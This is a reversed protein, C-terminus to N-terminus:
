VEEKRLIKRKIKHVDIPGELFVTKFSNQDLGCNWTTEFTGTVASSWVIYDDVYDENEIHCKILALGEIYWFGVHPKRYISGEHNVEEPLDYLKETSEILALRYKHSFCESRVDFHYLFEKTIYLPLGKYIGKLFYENSYDSFTIRQNNDVQDVNDVLSLKIKLDQLIHGNYVCVVDLIYYKNNWENLTSDILFDRDMRISFLKDLDGNHTFNIKSLNDLDREKIKRELFEGPKEIRKLSSEIPTEMYIVNLKSNKIAFKESAEFINYDNLDMKSIKKM